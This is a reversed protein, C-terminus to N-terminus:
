ANCSKCLKLTRGDQREIWRELEQRNASCLKFTVNTYGSWNRDYIHDCKARHLMPLDAASTAKDSNVVFGGGNTEIWGFFEEDSAPICIM